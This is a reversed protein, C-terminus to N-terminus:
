YTKSNESILQIKEKIKEEENINNINNNSNNSNNSSSNSSNSNNNSSSNSSNNNNNSSNNSSSDSSSNKDVNKVINDVNPTWFKQHLMYEVMLECHESDEITFKARKFIWKIRRLFEKPGKNIFLEIVGNFEKSDMIRFNKKKVITSGVTSNSEKISEDEMNGKGSKAESFTEETESNELKEKEKELSEKLQLNEKGLEEIEKELSEKLQFNEKSLKKNEKELLERLQLHEKNLKEIEEESSEKLQLNEKGLKENEKELPEGLQLHEKGLAGIKTELEKIRSNAESIEKVDIRSREDKQGVQKISLEEKVRQLERKRAINNEEKKRIKMEREKLSLYKAILDNVDKIGDPLQFVKSRETM